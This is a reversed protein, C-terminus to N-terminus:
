ALPHPLNPTSMAARIEAQIDITPGEGSSGDDSDEDHGDEASASAANAMIVDGEEDEESDPRTRASEEQPAAAPSSQQDSPGSPSAAQAPGSAGAAPGSGPSHSTHAEAVPEDGTSAGTANAGNLARPDSHSPAEEM